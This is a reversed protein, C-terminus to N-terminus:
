QKVDKLGGMVKVAENPETRPVAELNSIQKLYEKCWDTETVNPWGDSGPPSFRCEGQSSNYYNCTACSTDVM